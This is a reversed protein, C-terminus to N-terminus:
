FNTDVFELGFKFSSVLALDYESIWFQIRLLNLHILSGAQTSSKRGLCCSETMEPRKKRDIQIYGNSLMPYLAKSLTFCFLRSSVIGVHDHLISCTKTYMYNAMCGPSLVLSAMKHKQCSIRLSNNLQYNRPPQLCARIWVPPLPDRGWRERKAQLGIIVM